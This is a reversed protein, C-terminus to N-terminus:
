SRSSKMLQVGNTDALSALLRRAAASCRGLESPRGSRRPLLLHACSMGSSGANRTESLPSRHTVLSLAFWLDSPEGLRVIPESRPGAEASQRASQGSGATRVSARANASSQGQQGGQRERDSQNGQQGGQRERDSQNGQQGGQNQQPNSPNQQAM